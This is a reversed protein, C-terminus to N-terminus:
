AGSPWLAPKLTMIVLAAAPTLLALAGWLEWAKALKRYAALDFTGREAGALAMAHLRRQLPAVRLLFVAGSVAFLVIPWLIWGTRLLPFSGQIALWVGSALIAFVGPTTFFRDSRIIGAMTHALVRADRTREAHLHWFLGTIINGLFIVVSFVHITKLVLYFV